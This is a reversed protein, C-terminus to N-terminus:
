STQLFLYVHSQSANPEYIVHNPGSDHECGRGLILSADDMSAELTVLIYSSKLSHSPFLSFLDFSWHIHIFLRAMGSDITLSELRFPRSFLSM